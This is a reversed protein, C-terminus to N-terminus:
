CEALSSSSVLTTGPSSSKNSSPSCHNHPPRSELQPQVPPPSLASWSQLRPHSAARHKDPCSDPSLSPLRREQRHCDVRAIPRSTRSTPVTSAVRTIQSNPSTNSTSICFRHSTHCHGSSFPPRSFMLTLALRFPHSHRATAPDGSFLIRRLVRFAVSKSPPLLVPRTRSLRACKAVFSFLSPSPCNPAIARTRLLDMLSPPSAQASTGRLPRHDHAGSSTRTPNYAAHIIWNPHRDDAPELAVRQVSIDPGAPGDLRLLPTAVM